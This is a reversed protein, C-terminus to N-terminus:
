KRSTQKPTTPPVDFRCKWLKVAGDATALLQQEEFWAIGQPSHGAEVVLMQRGDAVNWMRATRDNFGALLRRGDASFRLCRVINAGAPWLSQQKGTAIDILLLGDRQTVVVLLTGDATIDCHTPTHDFKRGFVIKGSPSEYVNVTGDWFGAALHKGQRSLALCWAKRPNVVRLQEHLSRTALDISYVTTGEASSVAAAVGDPSVTRSRVHAGQLPLKIAVENGPKWVLVYGQRNVQVLRGETACALGESYGADRAYQQDLTFDELRWTQLGTEWHSSILRQQGFEVKQGAGSLTQQLEAQGTALPLVEVPTAADTAIAVNGAEIDVTEGSAPREMRVKGEDLELRSAAQEFYLRFRTGLVVYRSHHTAFILPRDPRQKAADVELSGALLELRVQGSAPAHVVSGSHMRVLTGDPYELSARATEGTLRLTEGVRLLDGVAAARSGEGSNIAAEGEIARLTAIPQVDGTWREWPRTFAVAALLVLLSVAIAFTRGGRRRPYPFSERALSLHFDVIDAEGSDEPTLFRQRLAAHLNVYDLYLDRASESALLQAELQAHQEASAAGNVVCEILDQLARDRSAQSM